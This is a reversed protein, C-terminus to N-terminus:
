HGVIMSLGPGSLVYKMGLCARSGKSFMLMGSELVKKREPDLWREPKFKIPDEFVAEDYHTIASSMGIAYGKPITYHIEKGQWVGQYLLKEETAVRATRLSVGLSLRLGEQIIASLYPLKELATWSPLGIYTPYTWHVNFGLQDDSRSVNQISYQKSFSM